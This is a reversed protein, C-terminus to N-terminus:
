CDFSGRLPGIFAYKPLRMAMFYFAAVPGAANAIMTAFGGLVGM